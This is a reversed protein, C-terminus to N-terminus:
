VPASHRNYLLHETIRVRVTDPIFCLRGNLAYADGRRVDAYSVALGRRGAGIRKRRLYNGAM